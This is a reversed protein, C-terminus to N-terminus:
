ESFFSTLVNAVSLHESELHLHHGGPLICYPIHPFAKLMTILTPYIKPLGEEALILKVPCKITRLFVSIHEQTLKLPSPAMLRIDSSWSYGGTVKRIGRQTLPTAAAESLVFMGNMRAVIAAQETSYVTRPKRQLSALYKLSQAMQQPANDASLPEPSVGEILALRKVREPFVSAAIVSIIAGRSHGLLSFRSWGLKDALAFIDQLDDWFSYAGCGLRHASKGHGAMDLAIIHLGQLHPALNIFTAANDLWGHLAIVPEGSDDGWEMACFTLGNLTFQREKPPNFM